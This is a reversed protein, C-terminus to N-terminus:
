QPAQQANPNQAAAVAQAMQIQEQQKQMKEEASRMFRKLYKVGRVEAIYCLAEMSKFDADLDPRSMFTQIMVQLFEASALEEAPILGAAIDFDLPADRLKNMDVDVFEGSEKDFVKINAQYQLTDSLLITRAPSFFQDDLFIASQLLRDGAMAMTTNFEGATKNGKVFQGQMVQNSSTIQNAFGLLTNAQQIRVGLARDEYPIAYYAQSLAFSGHMSRKVPIKATPSPNNVEESSILSSDYIARDSVLRQTSAFEARYLKTATNQIPELEEALTFSNLGLASEHTQGLIIPFLNHNNDLLEFHIMKGAGVRVIKAINIDAATATTIDFDAPICRIYLTVVDYEATSTHKIKGTKGDFADDYTPEVGEPTEVANIKPVYYGIPASVDSEKAIEKWDDPSLNIGEDACFQALAIRTMSQVYGVYAGRYAVEDVPVSADWLVNYPNLHTITEGEEFSHTTKAYGTDTSVAPGASKTARKKWRLEAACFNYNVADQICMMLNRRWKFKRSYRSYLINYQNAIDVAAPASFMQIPPDTKLFIKTLQAAISSLQPGVVPITISEPDVKHKDTKKVDRCDKPKTSDYSREILRDIKELRARHTNINVNSTLFSDIYTKVNDEQKETLSMAGAM